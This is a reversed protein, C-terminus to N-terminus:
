EIYVKKTVTSGDELTLVWTEVECDDVVVVDSRMQMEACRLTATDGHALETTEKNYTIKVAM